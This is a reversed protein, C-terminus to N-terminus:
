TITDDAEMVTEMAVTNWPWMVTIHDILHGRSPWKLIMHHESLEYWIVNPWMVEPLLSTTAMTTSGELFLM